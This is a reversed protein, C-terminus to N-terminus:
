VTAGRLLLEWVQHGVMPHRDLVTDAGSAVALTKEYITEAVDRLSATGSLISGAFVDFHVAFAEDRPNSLIKLVPLVPLPGLNTGILSPIRAPLGGGVSFLLLQAGAAAWGLLLQPVNAPCDMFHLGPGDPAGGWLFAGVIPRTGTKLIGGVSKEELTSLGGRINGPTPQTGRPDAGSERISAEVNGIASLLRSRVSEDSARESLIWETGILETTESFIVTGGEGIVRDVVRGIAENGALASTTDSGGCKVGLILRSTSSPSRELRAAVKSQESLWSRGADVARDFTGCSEITVSEVPKGSAAIGEAIDAVPLSDCGIGVVLACAVNPNRGIGVLCRLAAENDEALHACPQTHLLPFAGPVGEAIRAALENACQGAPLVLSVNRIGVSGNPRAFGEFTM